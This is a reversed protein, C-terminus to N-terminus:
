QAEVFAALNELSAHIGAKHDNSAIGEPVNKCSITVNTGGPVVNLTTTVTMSGAFAPDDTEFEVVEVIREGVILEQFHGHFADVHESTKGRVAHDAAVYSFIMHFRGNERPDFAQIECKMGAPPRWVAVAAADVFARYIAQQSAMIIRSVSDVRGTGPMVTM